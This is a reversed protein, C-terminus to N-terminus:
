FHINKLVYITRPLRFLSININLKSITNSIDNNKRNTLNSKIILQIYPIHTIYNPTIMNFKRKKWTM